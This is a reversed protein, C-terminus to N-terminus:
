HFFDRHKQRMSSAYINNDENKQGCYILLHQFKVVLNHTNKM